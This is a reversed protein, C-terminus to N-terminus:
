LIEKDGDWYKDFKSRNILNSLWSSGTYFADM